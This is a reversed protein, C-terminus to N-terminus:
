QSYDIYLELLQFHPVEKVKSHSQFIHKLSYVYRLM